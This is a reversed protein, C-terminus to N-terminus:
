SILEEFEASVDPYQSRLIERFKMGSVTQVDEPHEVYWRYSNRLRKSLKQHSKPYDPIEM